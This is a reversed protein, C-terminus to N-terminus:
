PKGRQHIPDYKPLHTLLVWQVNAELENSDPNERKLQVSDLILHRQTQLAHRLFREIAGTTGKIPMKIHYRMFRGLEDESPRYDARRVVLGEGEALQLLDGLAQPIGDHSILLQQFDQLRQRAEATSSVDVLSSHHSAAPRKQLSELDAVKARLHSGWVVSSLAVFVVAILGWEWAGLPRLLGRLFQRLNWTWRMLAARAWNMGRAVSFYPTMGDM